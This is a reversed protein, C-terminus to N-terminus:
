SLQSLYLGIGIALATSILLEVLYVSARENMTVKPWELVLRPVAVLPVLIFQGLTVFTTILVREMIGIYKNTGEPFNPPTGKVLGYAVFKILVWAPMTIFAYGLLYTLFYENQLNLIFSNTIATIELFGGGILAITILAIHAIQDLIYRLLAPIPLQVQQQFADVLFHTMSIFAVGQWWNPAFPLSFLWTVATIILCHVIVGKLARSKWLALSDWQLVYDGVLHALFMAIIM